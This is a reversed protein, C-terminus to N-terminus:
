MSSYSQTVYIFIVMRAPLPVGSLDLKQLVVVEKTSVM